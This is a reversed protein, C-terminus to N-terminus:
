DSPADAKLRREHLFTAIAGASEFRTGGCQVMRRIFKPRKKTEEVVKILYQGVIAIAGLNIGGFFVILAIISSVGHPVEPRRLMDIIQYVIAVLSVATLAAGAYGLFELPAFTFSFIAKRAWWVNRLLSQNSTGFLRKPRTYDIGTQKFGIWSRLGRLFQDTEPIALLEAVVRRDMLSFEGADLPMPVSSLARFVRYFAKYCFGLLPTTERKSRRGYVVEYGERWKTYLAPILEPPDQLDGDLLVTADGTALQMGSIFANQSGFNRSHEIVVVHNDRAAIDSLVAASDDPSGDNVFIIEYDVDLSRFVESLRQHAIPIAEVDKYCAIVASLRM